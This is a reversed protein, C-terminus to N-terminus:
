NLKALSSMLCFSVQLSHSNSAGHWPNIHQALWVSFFSLMALM